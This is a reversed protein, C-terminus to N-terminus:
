RQGAVQEAGQVHVAVAEDVVILEPPDNGHEIGFDGLGPRDPVGQSVFECGCACEMMTEM